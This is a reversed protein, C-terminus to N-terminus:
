QVYYIRVADMRGYAPRWSYEVLANDYPRSGDGRLGILQYWEEEDSDAGVYRVRSIDLYFCDDATYGHDALLAKQAVECAATYRAQMEEDTVSATPGIEQDSLAYCTVLTPREKGDLTVDFYIMENKQEDMIGTFWITEEQGAEAENLMIVQRFATEAPLEFGFARIIEIARATAEPGLIAPEMALLEDLNEPIEMSSAQMWTVLRDRQEADAEATAAISPLFLVLLLLALIRRSKM